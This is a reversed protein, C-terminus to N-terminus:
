STGAKDTGLMIVCVFHITLSVSYYIFCGSKGIIFILWVSFGLSLSRLKEAIIRFTLFLRFLHSSGPFDESSQLINKHHKCYFRAAQHMYLIDHDVYLRCGGVQPLFHRNTCRGLVPGAGHGYQRGHLCDDRHMRHSVM